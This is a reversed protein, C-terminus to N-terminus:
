PRCCSVQDLPYAKVTLEVIVGFAGGAGRIGKLLEKDAVVVEGNRDVIKAALINDLGLGYKSSLPGYGGYISWGVFGVFGISGLPTILGEKSLERAVKAQLIGGGVTVSSKGEDVKIYDIDRLDIMLADQVCSLGFLNNGGSRVTFQIANTTCFAVLAAVEDATQPRTIALPVTTFSRNYIARLSSFDPDTPKVYKIDSYAQLFNGLADRKADLSSAM